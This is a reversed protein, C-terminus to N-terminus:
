WSVSLEMDLTRFGGGNEPTGATRSPGEDLYNKGFQRAFEERTWGQREMALRQGYEQLAGRTEACRCLWATLGYKESKKRNAGGFIHHRDLPEATGNRGCLWCVRETRDRM